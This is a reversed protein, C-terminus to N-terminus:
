PKIEQRLIEQTLQDRPYLPKLKLARQRIEDAKKLNGTKKYLYILYSYTSIHEPNAEISKLFHEEAEPLSGKNLYAVGIQYEVRWSRPFPLRNLAKKFEAIAKDFFGEKLYAYGLNFHVRVTHPDKPNDESKLTSEFLIISNRWEFNRSITLLSLTTLIIILLALSFRSSLKLKSISIGESLLKDCGLALIIFFGMSATYLWHESVFANLPLIVNTLPLLNLSFWLFSFFVIKNNRARFIGILIIALIFVSLLISLDFSEAAPFSREIRLNWPFILLSLYFLVVKPFNILRIALNFPLMGISSFPLFQQRLIIYFLALAFFLLHIKINKYIDGFCYDYCLILLPLVLAIEKSLLAYIFCILASLYLINEKNTKSKAAKAFFITASLMFFAALPDARGSIYTVAQTHVPHVLFLLSAVFAVRLRSTLIYALYFLLCANFTHLILNTLHYGFPNLKWISFDFMLSLSFLPRYFNSETIWHFIDTSFIKLISAFSRIYGNGVILLEDDWIFANAFSNLYVTLGILALLLYYTRRTFPM